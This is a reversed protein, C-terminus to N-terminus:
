KITSYQDFNSNEDALSAAAIAKSVGMTQMLDTQPRRQNDEISKYSDELQETGTPQQIDIDDPISQEEEDENTIQPTEEVEAEVSEEIEIDQELAEDLGATEKISQSEAEDTM